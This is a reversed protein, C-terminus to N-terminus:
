IKFDDHHSTLKNFALLHGYPIGEGDREWYKLRDSQISCKEVKELEKNYRYGSLETKYNEEHLIRYLSVYDVWLYEDIENKCILIDIETKDVCLRILYYLVLVQRGPLGKDLTDPYVSEYLMLPGVEVDNNGYYYSGDKINIDIGTEEHVERLLTAIPNENEDVKGGPFVWAKPFSFMTPPRRTLLLNGSLDSILGVCALRVKKKSENYETLLSEIEIDSYKQWLEKIPCNYHHNIAEHFEKYLENPLNEHQETLCKGFQFEVNLNM